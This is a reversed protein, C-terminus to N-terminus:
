KIWTSVLFQNYISHFGVYIKYSNNNSSRSAIISYLALKTQILTFKAESIYKISALFQINFSKIVM